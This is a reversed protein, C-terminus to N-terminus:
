LTVEFNAPDYDGATGVKIGSESLSRKTAQWCEDCACFSHHDDHFAMQVEDATMLRLSGREIRTVPETTKTATSM